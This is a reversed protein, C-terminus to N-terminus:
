IAPNLAAPSTARAGLPHITAVFARGTSLDAWGIGVILHSLIFGDARHPIAGDTVASLKATQGNQATASFSRVNLYAPGPASASATGWGLLMM